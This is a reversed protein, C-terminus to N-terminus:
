PTQTSFSDPSTSSKRAKKPPPCSLTSSTLTLFQQRLNAPRVSRRRHWERDLTSYLVSARRQREERTDLLAAPSYLQQVAVGQVRSVEVWYRMIDSFERPFGTIYPPLPVTIDHDQITSSRGLRISFGRELTYIIWFFFVKRNREDESDSRMTAIRHYGLVQSMSAAQTSLKWALHPRCLDM